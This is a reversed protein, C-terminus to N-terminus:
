VVQIFLVTGIANANAELVVLRPVALQLVVVTVYVAQSALAASIPMAVPATQLVVAIEASAIPPLVLDLSEM